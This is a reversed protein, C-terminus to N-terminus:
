KATGQSASGLILPLRVPLAMSSVANALVGLSVGKGYKGGMTADAHGIIRDIVYPQCGTDRLSDEMGHRWSHFVLQPDKLGVKDMLRGFIKSYETSAQGDVGFPIESFLRVNSKDQKARKAAFDLFGLEILDPHLPVKRLGATSKVSKTSGGVLAKENIDLYPHIDNVVVDEIAIQVLEGLRCGTYYGLIPLWYKADRYIHDGSVHRRSKSKCGQFLPCSFLRKVEDAEFPRRVRGTKKDQKLTVKVAQAPNVDILGESSIAWSFFTRVPQFILEATKPEIRAANNSTQKAAFTQTAQFGHKARLTLVANRYSRIDEAKISALPRESGLFEVLYGLQWVRAKYTKLKWVPKHTELFSHIAAGLSPGKIKINYESVNAHQVDNQFLEDAIVQHALRDELRLLFLRQQEILVRAIGSALDNLRVEPLMNPNYGQRIVLDRVQHRIDPDFQNGGLQAQLETIRDESLVRQEHCEFEPQSTTPLFGGCKEQEAMVQVFCDQVLRLADHTTMENLKIMEFAEMVLATLLAALPRAKRLSYTRLSRVLETKGVQPRIADPVRIRLHYIGDRRQLHPARVGSM